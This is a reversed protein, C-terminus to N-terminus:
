TPPFGNAADPSTGLASLGVADAVAGFTSADAGFETITLDNIRFDL